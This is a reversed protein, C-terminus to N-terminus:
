ILKLCESWWKTSINNRKLINSNSVFLCVISLTPSTLLISLYLQNGLMLICSIDHNGFWYRFLINNDNHMLYFTVTCFVLTHLIHKLVNLKKKLTTWSLKIFTLSIIESISSMIIFLILEISLEESVKWHITVFYADSISVVLIYTLITLLIILNICCNCYWIEM